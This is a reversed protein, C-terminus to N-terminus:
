FVVMKSAPRGQHGGPGYQVFFIPSSGMNADVPTLPFSGGADANKNTIFAQVSLENSLIDDFINFEASLSFGGGSASVQDPAPATNYNILAINPIDPPMSGDQASYGSENGGASTLTYYINHGPTIAQHGASPTMSGSDAPLTLVTKTYVGGTETYLTITQGALGGTLTALAYLRSDWDSGNGLATYSRLALEGNFVPPSPVITDQAFESVNGAPNAITYLVYNGSTITYGSGIDGTYTALDVGTLDAKKVLGTTGASDTSEYVSLVCDTNTEASVGASDVKAKQAPTSYSLKTQNPAAPLDELASMVGFNGDPNCVAFAIKDTGAIYLQDNTFGSAAGPASDGNLVMYNATGAEAKLLSGSNLKEFLYFYDASTLSLNSAGSNVLKRDYNRYSLKQLDAASPQAPVGTTGALASENSDADFYIFRLAGGAPNPAIDLTGFGGNALNDNAYYQTFVNGICVRFGPSLNIGGGSSRIRYNGGSDYDLRASTVAADTLAPISTSGLPQSENNDVLRTFRLNGGTQPAGSFDDAGFGGDNITATQTLKKSYASGIWAIYDSSLNVASGYAAIKHKLGDAPDHKLRAYSIGASFDAAPVGTTGVLGSVNSTTQDIYYFKLAGGDAPPASLLNSDFAGASIGGGAMQGTNSTKGILLKLTKGSECNFATAGSNYILYSSANAPDYRTRLGAAGPVPPVADGSVIPSEVGGDTVYSFRLTGGAAATKLENEDSSEDLLYTNAFYYSGIMGPDQGVQNKYVRGILTTDVYVRLDYPLPFSTGASNYVRYYPLPGSLDFKLKLASVGAPAAPLLPGGSIFAVPSENNDSENKVTFGVYKGLAVSTWGEAGLNYSTSTGDHPAAVPMFEHLATQAPDYVGDDDTYTNIFTNAPLTTIPTAGVTLTGAVNNYTVGTLDPAAPVTTLNNYVPSENGGANVYSFGLGGGTTVSTSLCESGEALGSESDVYSDALGGASITNAPVLTSSSVRGIHKGGVFVRMDNALTVDGGTNSNFVRYPAPDGIQPSGCIVRLYGADAASPAPPVQALSDYEASENGAANVYSYILNGGGTAATSMYESGNEHGCESDVYRDVFGSAQAVNPSALAAADIRAIRDNGVYVRVDGALLVASASSNYLRYLGALPDNATRFQAFDAAPSAPVSTINGGLASENSDANTDTFRLDGGAQNSAINTSGDVAAAVNDVALLPTSVSGIYVRTTMGGSSINSAGGAGGNIVYAGAGNKRNVRVDAVSASLAPISTIGSVASENKSVTDYSSFRLSGGSPQATLDASGYGNVAISSPGAEYGMLANDHYVKLYYNAPVDFSSAGINNVKYAGAPGYAVRLDAAAPAAPVTSAGMAASCNGSSNDTLYYRLTGGAAYQSFSGFTMGPTVSAPFAASGISVTGIGAFVSCNGASTYTNSGSNYLVAQSINAPDNKIRVDDIFPAQPVALATDHVVSENGSSNVYSLMLNGSAASDEILSTANASEAPDCSAPAQNYLVAAASVRGIKTSGVYIRMDNDLTINEFNHTNIIRYGNIFNNKLRFYEVNAPSGVAIKPPIATATDYYASMNGDGSAGGEKVYAFRLGGGATQTSKLENLGVSETDVYQGAGAYGKSAITTKVVRGILAPAPTPGVFVRLDYDLVVPAGSANFLRYFTGYYSTRLASGVAAAPAPPVIGDATYASENGDINTLTYTIEMGGAISAAAPYNSGAAFGGAPAPSTSAKYAYAAGNKEYINVTDGTAAVASGSVSFYSEANNWVLNAGAPPASVAGDDAYNSENGSPNTITYSVVTGADVTGAVPALGSYGGAGAPAASGVKSYVTGNLEFVNMVDGTSGAYNGGTVKFGGAANSWSLNAAVPIAPVTGDAAYDSENGASNKFTYVVTSGTNLPSAVSVVQSGAPYGGAGAPTATSAKQSYTAGTLEYVFLMVDDPADAGVPSAGAVVSSSALSYGLNSLDTGTPAPPIMGDYSIDSVNGSADRMAYGVYQGATFSFSGALPGTAASLDTGGVEGLSVLGGNSKLTDSDGMVLLKAATSALDTMGPSSVNVSSSCKRAFLKAADPALPIIGDASWVTMNGAMDRLRYYVTNNAPQLTLGGIVVEGSNFAQVANPSSALPTSNAAPANTNVAIDVIVPESFADPGSLPGSAVVAQDLNTFTINALQQATLFAPVNVDYWVTAADSTMASINGGADITKTTVELTANSSGLQSMLTDNAAGSKLAFDLTTSVGDAAAQLRAILSGNRLELVVSGAAPASSFSVSLMEAATATTRNVVGSAAALNIANVPNQWGNQGAVVIMSSFGAQGPVTGKHVWASANGATDKFRFFISTGAPQSPISSIVADGASHAAVSSAEAAAPPSSPSPSSGFFIELAGFEPYSFGTLVQVSHAANDFSLASLQSTTPAAPPTVDRSISVGSTTQLIENGVANTIKSGALFELGSGTTGGAIGSQLEGATFSRSTLSVLVTRGSVDAPDPSLTDGSTFATGSILIKAPDASAVSVQEDFVIKLRNHAAFESSAAAPVRNSVAFASSETPTGYVFGDFPTIRIKVSPQNTMFDSRSNWTLSKGTGPTLGSVAGTLNSVASYITGGDTSYEVAVSCSDNQADSLDFTVAVAGTPSSPAQSAALASVAPPTNNTVNFPSSLGPQGTATGDDPVLRVIIGTRTGTFEAITNWTLSGTGPAVNTLAGAVNTTRSFNAGSDYSVFVELSCNNGDPDSLTYNITINGSNGITGTIQVAPPRNNNVAFAPSEGAVGDETGDNATIRVRVTAVNGAIDRPSDWVATKSGPAAPSSVGSVASMPKYSAGSDTSYYCGLTCSDNDADALSFGISINGSSGSVGTISVVPKANTSIRIVTGDCAFGYNQPTIAVAASGFTCGPKGARLNYTGAPFNGAFSFRGSGDTSATLSLGSYSLVVEASEVAAGDKLVIKGAIATAGTAANKIQTIAQGIQTKLVTSNVVGTFSGIPTSSLTLTGASSIALNAAYSKGSEITMESVLFAGSSTQVSITVKMQPSSVVVDVDWFGTDDSTTLYERGDATVRVTRGKAPARSASPAAPVAAGSDDIYGAVSANPTSGAPYRVSVNILSVDVRNIENSISLESDPKVFVENSGEWLAEVPINGPMYYNLKATVVVSYTDGGPITNGITIYGKQFEEVASAAATGTKQQDGCRFCPGDRIGPREVHHKKGAGRLFQSEIKYTGFLRRAPDPSRRGRRGYLRIDGAFCRSFLRRVVRHSIFFPNDEHLGGPKYYKLLYGFLLFCFFM